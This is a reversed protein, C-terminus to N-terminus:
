TIMIPNKYSNNNMIYPGGDKKFLHGDKLFVHGRKTKFVTM